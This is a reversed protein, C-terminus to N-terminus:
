APQQTGPTPLSRFWRESLKKGLQQSPMEISKHLIWSLAMVACISLLGAGHMGLGLRSSIVLLGWAIPIHLLYLPYSIGGIWRLPRLIRGDMGFAMAAAFILFAAIGDHASAGIERHNTASQLVCLGLWYCGFVSVFPIFHGRWSSTSYARYVISGVLMYSVHVAMGSLHLLIRLTNGQIGQVLPSAILATFLLCLVSLSVISATTVKGSVASLLAMVIYFAIEVELTWLVPITSFAGNYFNLAFSSTLISKISNPQEFGLYRSYAATIGAVLLVSVFCLPVIRFFRQLLFASPKTREVTRLIIFGSILFFLAVGLGGPGVGTSQVLILGLKGHPNQAPSEAGFIPAVVGPVWNGVTAPDNVGVLMVHGWVVLLVAIARLSDLFLIRRGGSQRITM